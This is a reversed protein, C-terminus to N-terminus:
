LHVHLLSLKMSKKHIMPMYKHHVKRQMLVRDKIGPDFSLKSCLNRLFKATAPKKLRFNDTFPIKIDETSWYSCRSVVGNTQAKYLRIVHHLFNLM